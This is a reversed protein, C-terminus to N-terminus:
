KVVSNVISKFISGGLVQRIIEKKKTMKFILNPRHFTTCCTKLEPFFKGVNKRAITFVIQLMKSLFLTKM